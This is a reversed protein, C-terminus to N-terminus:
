DGTELCQAEDPMVQTELCSLGRRCLSQVWMEDTKITM